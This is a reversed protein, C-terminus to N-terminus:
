ANSFSIAVWELTRAQLIGPIPNCLTPCSQLSKATATEIFWLSTALFPFVVGCFHAQKQTCTHIHTHPTTKSSFCNRTEWTNPTIMGAPEQPPTSSYSFSSKYLQIHGEKQIQGSTPKRCDGRAGLHASQGQGNWKWKREWSQWHSFYDFRALFPFPFCFWLMSLTILTCPTQHISEQSIWVICCKSTPAVMEMKCIFVKSKLSHLCLARFWLCFTAKITVLSWNKSQSCQWMVRVRFCVSSFTRTESKTM